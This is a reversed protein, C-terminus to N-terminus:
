YIPLAKKNWGNVALPPVEIRGIRWALFGYSAGVVAGVLITWLVPSSGLGADISAHLRTMLVTLIAGDNTDLMALLLIATLVAAGGLAKMSLVTRWRAGSRPPTNPRLCFAAVLFWMLTACLAGFGIGNPVRGHASVVFGWDEASVDDLRLDAVPENLDVSPFWREHVDEPTGEFGHVESLARCIQWMLFRGSNTPQVDFPNYIFTTSGWFVPHPFPSSTEGWPSVARSDSGNSAFRWLEPPVRVHDAYEADGTLSDESQADLQVERSLIAYKGIPRPLTAWLTSSVLLVALPPLALFRLARERRIPFADIGHLVNLGVRLSGHVLMAPFWLMFFLMEAGMATVFVVTIVALYLVLPRLFTSRLLTWRLPGLVRVPYPAAADRTAQSTMRPDDVPSWAALRAWLFGLCLAVLIVVAGDLAQTEIFAPALVVGLAVVATAMLEVVHLTRKRPRYVFLVLVGLALRFLGHVVLAGLAQLDHSGRLLLGVAASASLFPLAFGIWITAARQLIIARATIPLTREFDTIRTRPSVHKLTLVVSVQLTVMLLLIYAFSGDLASNVGGGFGSLSNSDVTQNRSLAILDLGSTAEFMLAALAATILCALPLWRLARERKLLTLM